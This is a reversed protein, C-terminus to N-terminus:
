RSFKVVFPGDARVELIYSGPPIRPGLVQGRYSGIKNVLLRSRGQFDRLWVVFNRIHPKDPVPQGRVMAALAVVITM